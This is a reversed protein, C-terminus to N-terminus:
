NIASLDVNKVDGGIIGKYQNVLSYAQQIINLIGDVSDLYGDINIEVTAIKYYIKLHDGSLMDSNLGLSLILDDLYLDAWDLLAEATQDDTTEAWAMFNAALNDDHYDDSSAAFATVAGTFCSCAMIVALFLAILKRAFTKSRSKM